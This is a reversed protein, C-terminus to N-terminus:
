SRPRRVLISVAGAVFGVVFAALNIAIEEMGEEPLPNM